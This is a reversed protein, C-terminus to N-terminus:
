EERSAFFAVNERYILAKLQHIKSEISVRRLFTRFDYILQGRREIYFPVQSPGRRRCLDSPIDRLFGHLPPVLGHHSPM